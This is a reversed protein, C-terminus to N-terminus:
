CLSTEEREDNNVKRRKNIEFYFDQGWRLRVKAQSDERWQFDYLDCALKVYDLAIGEKRLLRILGRLHISVEEIDSSSAFMNFRRTIREREEEIKVLKGVATGLGTGDEHMCINKSQQHMAYLTLATYVAWEGKTPEGTKSLLEEPLDALILGWLEPMDGPSKGIGRRLNALTARAKGTALGIELKKLRGATYIIIKNRLNAM